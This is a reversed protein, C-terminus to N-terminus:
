SRGRRMQEIVLLTEIADLMWHQREVFRGEQLDEIERKRILLSNIRMNDADSM